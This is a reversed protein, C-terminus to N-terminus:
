KIYIESKNLVRGLSTLHKLLQKFSAITWCWNTSSNFGIHNYVYKIDFITRGSSIQLYYEINLFFIYEFQSLALCSIYLDM